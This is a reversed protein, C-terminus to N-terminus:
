IGLNFVAKHTTNCNLKALDKVNYKLDSRLIMDETGITFIKAKCSCITCKKLTKGSKLLNTKTFKDLDAFLM